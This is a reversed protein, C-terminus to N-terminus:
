WEHCLVSQIPGSWTHSAQKFEERGILPPVDWWVSNSSCYVVSFPRWLLEQFPSQPINVLLRPWSQMSSPSRHKRNPSHKTNPDPLSMVAKLPGLNIDACLQDEFASTSNIFGVFTGQSGSDRSRPHEDLM